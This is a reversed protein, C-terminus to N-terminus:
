AAVKEGTLWDKAFPFFALGATLMFLCWALQGTVLALSIWMVIALALMPLRTDRRWVLFAFSIEFLVVAHTWLNFLFYMGALSTVDMLRSESHAALWWMASGEWWTSGALKWLGFALYFGALHLQMLRISINATLSPEDPRLWKAWPMFRDLKLWRDISLYAGSPALCLYLLMVLLVPELLGTIMPARNMYFLMMFFVGVSSIRSLLGATLALSFVIAISHITYLAIPHNLVDFPSIRVPLRPGLAELRAATFENRLGTPLLGDGSFWSLLDQSWSLFFVLAALGIVIRMISVSFPLRPTFWFRNWCDATERWADLGNAMAARM